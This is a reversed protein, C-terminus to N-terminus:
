SNTVVESSAQQNHKYTEEEVDAEAFVLYAIVAIIVILIALSAKKLNTM